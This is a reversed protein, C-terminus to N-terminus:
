CIARCGRCELVAINSYGEALLIDPLRSPGAGVDLIVAEKALGCARILRLSTEPMAQFWGVAEDVKTTFVENWHEQRTGPMTM